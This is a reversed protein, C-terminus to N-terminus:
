LLSLVFEQQSYGGLRLLSQQCAEIDLPAEAVTRSRSSQGDFVLVFM